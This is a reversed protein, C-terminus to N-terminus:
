HLSKVEAPRLLCWFRHVLYIELIYVSFSCHTRHAPYVCMRPCRQSSFLTNLRGNNIPWSEIQFETGGRFITNQKLKIGLSSTDEVEKTSLINNEFTSVYCWRCQILMNDLAQWIRRDCNAAYRVLSRTFIQLLIWLAAVQECKAEGFIWAVYQTFVLDAGIKLYLHSKDELSQNVLAVLLNNSCGKRSRVINTFLSRKLWLIFKIETIPIGCQLLFLLHYRIRSRSVLLTIELCMPSYVSKNRYKHLYNFVLSPNRHVSSTLDREIEETLM